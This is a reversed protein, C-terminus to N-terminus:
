GWGPTCFLGGGGVRPPEEILLVKSHRRVLTRQTLIARSRDSPAQLSTIARVSAVIDSMAGSCEPTLGTMSICM